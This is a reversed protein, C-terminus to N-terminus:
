SSSEIKEVIFGDIALVDIETTAFVDVADEPTEVIPEGKRNLSTNLVVPVETVYYFHWLLKYFLGDDQASVTQLRSSGDVHVVAPILEIASKKAQAVLLMHPSRGVPVHFYTSAFEELVAPSFPRFIERSKIRRLKALITEAHVRRPDALISRHGLARPGWESRGHFWAVVRGESLRKAVWSLYVSEDMDKIIKTRMRYKKLINRLEGETLPDRKPGLYPSFPKLRERGGGERIFAILANGLSQGTDGAAPAIFIKEVETEEIIKTNAVCNLGVGGSICLNRIGTRRVLYNAMKIAFKETERQVFAALDKYVQPVSGPDIPAFSLPPPISVDFKRFFARLMGIPDLPINAINSVFNGEVEDIDFISYRSFRGHDGYAALAMTNGSYTYSHWGLYYTFARYVEGPGAELPNYFVRCLEKIDQGEGIYCTVQERPYLWWKNGRLKDYSSLIDGGADYIIIIAREFPSLMFASYAHSLHHSVRVTEFGELEPLQYHRDIFDACSSVVISCPKVERLGYINRLYQLSRSFGSDHKVRSVREEALSVMSGDSFIIAAGGDKLRKGYSTMGMNVGMFVM